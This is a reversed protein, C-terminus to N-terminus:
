RSKKLIKKLENLQEEKSVLTNKAYIILERGGLEMDSQTERIDIDTVSFGTTHLLDVIEEICYYKTYVYVGQGIRYPEEVMKEGNGELLILLLGGNNKLVRKFGLLTTQALEKPVHIMSCNSLIGNFRNDEFTLKNMDMKSVECNPNRRKAEELMNDSFDIGISKYGGFENIYQCNKACGCGVDLIEGSELSKLWKNIYINYNDNDGFEECYEIAIDNYDNIVSQVKDNINLSM